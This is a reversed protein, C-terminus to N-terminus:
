LMIDGTKAPTKNREIEDIQKFDEATKAEIYM